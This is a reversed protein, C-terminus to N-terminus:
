AEDPDLAVAGAGAGPRPRRPERAGALGHVDDAAGSRIMAEERLVALRCALGHEFGPPATATAIEHIARRLERDSYHEYPRFTAM